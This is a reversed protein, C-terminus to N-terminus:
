QNRLKIHWKQLKAIRRKLLRGRFEFSCKCMRLVHCHSVPYNVFTSYQGFMGVEVFLNDLSVLIDFFPVFLSIHDYSHFM